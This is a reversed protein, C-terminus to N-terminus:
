IRSSLFIAHTLPPSPLPDGIMIGGGGGGGKYSKYGAKNKFAFLM